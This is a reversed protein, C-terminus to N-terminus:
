PTIANVRDVIKQGEEVSGGLWILGANENPKDKYVKDFTWKKYILLLDPNFAIVGEADGDINLDDGMGEVKEVILKGTELEGGGLWKLGAEENPKGKYVKDFTWKKYISLLDGAFDVKGDGNVDLDGKGKINVEVTTTYLTAEGPIADADELNPLAILTFNGKGAALDSPTVYMTIVAESGATLAQDFSYEVYKKGNAENIRLVADATVPSGGVTFSTTLYDAATKDDVAKFDPSTVTITASTIAVGAAVDLKYSMQFPQHATKNEDTFDSVISYTHGAKKADSPVLPTQEVGNVTVGSIAVSMNTVVARTVMETSGAKDDEADESFVLNYFVKVDTFEEESFDTKLVGNELSTNGRTPRRPNYKVSEALSGDAKYFCINLETGKAIAYKAADFLYLEMQRENSAVVTRTDTEIIAPADTNGINYRLTYVGPVLNVNTLGLSAGSADTLTLKGGEDLAGSEVEFNVSTNEDIVSDVV